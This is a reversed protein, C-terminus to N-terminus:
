AALEEKENVVNVPVSLEEVIEHQAARFVSTVDESALVLSTYQKGFVLNGDKDTQQKDGVMVPFEKVKKTIIEGPIPNGTKKLFNLQDPTERWAVTKGDASHRQSINRSARRFPNPYLRGDNGKIAEAFTVTVYQRRAKKDSREKETKVETVDTVIVNKTM